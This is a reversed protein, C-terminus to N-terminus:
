LVRPIFRVLSTNFFKNGLDVSHIHLCGSGQSYLCRANSIRRMPLIACDVRIRPDVHTKIKARYRQDSSPESPIKARTRRRRNQTMWWKEDYRRLSIERVKCQNMTREVNKAKAEDGKSDVVYAEM